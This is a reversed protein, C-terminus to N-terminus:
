KPPEKNNSIITYYSIGSLRTRIILVRVTAPSVRAGAM